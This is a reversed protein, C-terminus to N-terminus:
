VSTKSLETLIRSLNGMAKELLEEGKPTNRLEYARVVALNTQFKTLLLELEKDTTTMKKEKNIEEYVTGGCVM